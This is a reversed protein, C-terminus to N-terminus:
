SSKRWFSSLFVFYLKPPSEKKLTSATYSLQISRCNGSSCAAPEFGAAAAMLFLPTVRGQKKKDPCSEFFLLRSASLAGKPASLALHLLPFSKRAFRIRGACPTLRIRVVVAPFGAAAAMLFLPTVRGQKKKDPCSEFFLLRSASLAGKPASLALHLLPFSKRAFRIRGACPTLRIRVVVAPFGAAAAMLFLPTVRGQKKKDPCSEFFFQRLIFCDMM